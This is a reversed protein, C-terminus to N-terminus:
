KGLVNLAKITEGEFDSVKLSMLSGHSGQFWLGLVLIHLPGTLFCASGSPRLLGGGALPSLLYTEDEIKVARPGRFSNEEGERGEKIGSSM